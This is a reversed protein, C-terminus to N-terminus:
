QPMATGPIETATHPRRTGPSFGSPVSWPERRHFAFMPFFIGAITGESKRSWANALRDIRRGWGIYRLQSATSYPPLAEKAPRLLQAEIAAM